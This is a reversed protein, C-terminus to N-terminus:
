YHVRPFGEQNQLYKLVKAEYALFQYKSHATEFKAAYDQGSKTDRCCFVEGFSGKGLRRGIAYVGGILPTSSCSPSEPQM